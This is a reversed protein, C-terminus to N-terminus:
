QCINLNYPYGTIAVHIIIIFFSRSMAKNTKKKKLFIDGFNGIFYNLLFSYKFIVDDSDVLFTPFLNQIEEHFVCYLVYYSEKKIHRSGTLDFEIM